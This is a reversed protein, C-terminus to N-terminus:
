KILLKTKKLLVTNNEYKRRTKSFLYILFGIWHGLKERSYRKQIDADWKGKNLSFHFIIFKACWVHSIDWVLQWHQTLKILYQLFLIQAGGFCNIKVFTLFNPLLDVCSHFLFGIGADLIEDRLTFITITMMNITFIMMTMMKNTMMLRYWGLM